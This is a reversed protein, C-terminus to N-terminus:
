FFNRAIIKGKMDRQSGSLAVNEEIKHSRKHSYPVKWLWSPNLPVFTGIFFNSYFIRRVVFDYQFANFKTWIESLYEISLECVNPFEIRISRRINASDIASDASFFYLSFISKVFKIKCRSDNVNPNGNFVRFYQRFTDFGLFYLNGNWQSGTMMEIIECRQVKKILSGKRLIHLRCIVNKGRSEENKGEWIDFLLRLRKDLEFVIGIKQDFLWDWNTLSEKRNVLIM